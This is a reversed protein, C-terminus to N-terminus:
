GARGNGPRNIDACGGAGSVGEGRPGPWTTLLLQTLAVIYRTFQLYTTGGEPGM